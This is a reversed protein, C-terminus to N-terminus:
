RIIVEKMENKAKKLELRIIQHNNKYSNSSSSRTNIYTHKHIWKTRLSVDLLHVYIAIWISPCFCLRAYVHMGYYIDFHISLACNEDAVLDVPIM